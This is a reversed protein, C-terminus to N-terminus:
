TCVPSRGGGTVERHIRVRRQLSRAAGHRQVATREHDRGAVAGVSDPVTVSFSLVAILFTVKEPAAGAIVADARAVVCAIRISPTVTVPPVFASLRVFTVPVFVSVTLLELKVFVLPASTSTLPPLMGNAMPAVMLLLAPRTMSMWFRVLPATVKVAGDGVAAARADDQVGVAGRREGKVPPRVSFPALEVNVAVLLPVSFMVPVFVIPAEVAGVPGASFTAFVVIPALPRVNRLMEAVPPALPMTSLLVPEAPPKVTVPVPVAPLPPVM